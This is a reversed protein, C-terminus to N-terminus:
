NGKPKNYKNKKYQLPSIGNTYRQFVRCFYNPNSFGVASSVENIPMMHDLLLKQACCIRYYNLFRIPPMGVQATFIKHLYKTSIHVSAAIDSETINKAYNEQIFLLAGGVYAHYNKSADQSLNHKSGLHLAFLKLLNSLMFFSDDQYLYNLPNHLDSFVSWAHKMYPIDFIHPELPLGIGEVYKRALPGGFMIWYQEWEPADPDEDVTYYQPKDPSMLLGPGQMPKDFLEKGKAVHISLMGHKEFCIWVRHATVSKWFM